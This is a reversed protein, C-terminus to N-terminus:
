MFAELDEETRKKNEVFEELAKEMDGLEEKKKSKRERVKILIPYNVAEGIVLAEGVKLGPIM